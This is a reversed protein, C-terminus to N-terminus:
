NKIAFVNFIPANSCCEVAVGKLLLYAACAASHAPFSGVGEGSGSWQSFPTSFVLGLRDDLISVISSSNRLFFFSDHAQLHIASLLACVQGGEV